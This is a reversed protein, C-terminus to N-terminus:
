LFDIRDGIKLDLPLEYRQRRYLIDSSDCTPGALIVPGCPDAM